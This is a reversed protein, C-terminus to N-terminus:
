NCLEAALTVERLQLGASADPLAHSARNPLTVSRDALTIHEAPAAIEIVEADASSELVRHRIRPPQLVCEGPQMVLAAGQSEYAVRVCGARCFIAHFRIAHFHVYDPM